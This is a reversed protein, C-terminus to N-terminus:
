EVKFIKKTIYAFPLLFSLGITYCITIIFAIIALMVIVPNMIMLKFTNKYFSALNKTLHILNYAVKKLFDKLM